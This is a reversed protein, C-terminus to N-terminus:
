ARMPVWCPPTCDTKLHRRAWQFFVPLKVIILNLKKQRLEALFPRIHGFDFDFLGGILFRNESWIEAWKTKLHRLFNLIIVKKPTGIVKTILVQLFISKKSKKLWKFVLHASIQHSCLKKISPTPSSSKRCKQGNKASNHCIETWKTKLHSLFDLIIVKKSISPWKFALHASIQLSFLNKYIVLYPPTIYIPM